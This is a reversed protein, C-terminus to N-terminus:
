MAATQAVERLSLIAKQFSDQFHGIEASAHSPTYSLRDGTQMALILSEPSWARPSTQNLADYASRLRTIAGPFGDLRAQHAVLAPDRQIRLRVHETTAIKPLRIVTTLTNGDYHWGPDETNHAPNLTRGNVTISTPPWDAPLRVEYSRTQLMGAYHGRVPAVDVDLTSGARHADIQTWACVSQKYTESKSGDEYVTYSSHQGDHMPFVNIILPDVPKEGTYRMQPQMPVIAGARIYVPVQDISFSRDVTVPGTVHKGTPWEIWEGEPIWIHETALNSATDVAQTVPAVFMNEGFM